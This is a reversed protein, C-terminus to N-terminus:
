RRSPGEGGEPGAGEFSEEFIEHRDLEMWYLISLRRIEDFYEPGLSRFREVASRIDGQVQDRVTSKLSLRLRRGGRIFVAVPVPDTGIVRITGRGLTAGTAVQLGDTLCSVPPAPGAYSEVRLDDLSAGLMERARIGMKVGLLSYIGLHRHLENTLLAAAWEELGHRAIITEVHPGLDARFEEPLTPFRSLIVPRRPPFAKGAALIGRLADRLGPGDILEMRYVPRDEEVRVPRFLGPAAVALAALDDWAQVHGERMLAEIEPRRHLGAILRGAPSASGETSALPLDDLPLWEAVDEHPVLRVPIGSALVDAAAEPDRAANWGPEPDGPGRGSFYVAAIRARTEPHEELLSALSTLPGLAVWVLPEDGSGLASLAVSLADPFVTSRAPEGGGITDLVAAVRRWPPAPRDSSEGVGIPVGAADLERLVRAVRAAGEAPSSGGDSSLVARVDVAPSQILLALARVDDLAVDTDVIVPIPPEHAASPPAFAAALLGLYLAALYRHVRFM